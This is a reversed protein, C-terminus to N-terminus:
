RNMPPEVNLGQEKTPANGASVILAVQKADLAQMVAGARELASNHATEEGTILWRGSQHSSKRLALLGPNDADAPLFTWSMVVAAKAGHGQATVQELTLVLAEIHQLIFTHPVTKQVGQPLTAHWRLQSGGTV